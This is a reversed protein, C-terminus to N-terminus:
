RVPRRNGRRRTRGVAEQQGVAENVFDRLQPSYGYMDETRFTPDMFYDRHYRAQVILNHRWVNDEGVFSLLEEAGWLFNAVFWRYREREKGELNHFGGQTFQPYEVTLKIYDRWINKSTTERQNELNAKLQRIATRMGVVAVVFTAFAFASTIAPAIASWDTFFQWMSGGM